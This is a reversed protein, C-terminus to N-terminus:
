PCGDPLAGSGDRYLKTPHRTPQLKHARWIRRMSALSIGTASASLPDRLRALDSAAQGELHRATEVLIGRATSFRAERAPERLKSALELYHQERDGIAM